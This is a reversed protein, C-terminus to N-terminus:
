PCTTCIAGQISAPLTPITHGCLLGLRYLMLDVVRTNSDSLKCVKTRDGDEPGWWVDTKWPENSNIPAAATFFRNLLSSKLWSKKCLEMYILSTHTTTTLFIEEKLRIRVGMAGKAYMYLPSGFEEESSPTEGYKPDHIYIQQGPKLVTEREDDASTDAGKTTSSADKFASSSEDNVSTDAGKTTSSADKFASSSEDNVSTDAGKTTSSVDKFASSGEDHVTTDKAGRALGANKSSFEKYQVSPTFPSHFTVYVRLGGFTEPVWDIIEDYNEDENYVAFLSGDFFILIERARKFTKLALRAAEEPLVMLPDIQRSWPDKPPSLVRPTTILPFRPGPLLVPKNAIFLPIDDLQLVNQLNWVHGMYKIHHRLYAPLMQKIEEFNDLSVQLDKLAHGQEDIKNTTLEIGQFKWGRSYVEITKLSVEESPVARDIFL